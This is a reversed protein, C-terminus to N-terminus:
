KENRNVPRQRFPPGHDRTEVSKLHRDAAGRGQGLPCVRDMHHRRGAAILDLQFLKEDPQGVSPRQDRSVAEADAAVLAGQDGTRGAGALRGQEAGDGTDPRESAARDSDRCFGLQHHQRLPRIKRDTRQHSRDDIGRFHAREIRIPDLINQDRHAQGLERRPQLFVPVPVSDERQALLLAKPERARQQVRRM